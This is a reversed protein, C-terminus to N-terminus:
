DILLQQRSEISNYFTLPLNVVTHSISSLNVVTGVRVRSEAARVGRTPINSGTQFLLIRLVAYDPTQAHPVTVSAATVKDVDGSASVCTMIFLSGNGAGDDDDDDDSMVTM